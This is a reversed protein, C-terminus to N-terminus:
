NEISESSIVTGEGGEICAMPLKSGTSLKKVDQSLCIFIRRVMSCFEQWPDDGVLMMDGEDDTYVIEWKNRPRLEGKIDFMEELEDILQDYGELMALDVARGVAVGQMQVKTRSRTSSPCSQRSQIEKAQLQLQEQKENSDKSIESKQCSNNPSLTHHGEATSATMTSLQTPTRELQRSSASHNILEIGFLRCSSATESKKVKEIPDFTSDNNVQPNSLGSLVPWGSACKSDDRADPFRHKSVSMCPSSLWSGENQTKLVSSCSSSMETQMHWIVHNENRNAEATINRRMLDHTHMVGSNWPASATSPLELAPIECTPRPRKNKAAVPQGLTPPIPAAFPEIEWPSVRDPRPISAPEDWQVKLSRWKSDKWYPSFDEVGVITGSFRREPSDEGEFRMKFRMGVTFKNNLAELYKNLGIIFQSTRPKYYVVFLTQTSVAHSATALVGLHMSQSSIVSTPMSSQQRAVRRVGVRLEGSEGRLFVFSDGAVLRKSTVFTSWGTTLLHRRPQGRFIHKFRWEYGHLDKAVLEQTPTAQNMDLPPLCETAHKRLVSFGGHTSTDSATLVKCFSCVTPKPPEPPCADPTTPEPQNPEPMLTIQAYVEDTEQEALFQIHVVSCLIKSPLNFLPIRQNLEQNTSAELQEMHGQPFYYVRERARPAEVLPGACLKWLEMYLDDGGNGESSVNNTQSFVGGRNSM